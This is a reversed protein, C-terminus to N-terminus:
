EAGQHAVSSNPTHPPSPAGNGGGENGARQRSAAIWYTCECDLTQSELKGNEWNLYLTLSHCNRDGSRQVRTHRGRIPESPGAAARTSVRWRVKKRWILPPFRKRKSPSHPLLLLRRPARHYLFQPTETHGREAGREAVMRWEVMQRRTGGVARGGGDTRRGDADGGAEGGEGEM